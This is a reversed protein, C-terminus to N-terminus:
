AKKSQDLLKTIVIGARVTCSSGRIKNFILTTKTGQGQTYTTLKLLNITVKYLTVMYKYLM